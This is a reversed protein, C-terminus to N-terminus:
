LDYNKNKALSLALYFAFHATPFCLSFGLVGLAWALANDVLSYTSLSGHMLREVQLQSMPCVPILSM